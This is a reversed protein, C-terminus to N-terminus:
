SDMMIGVAAILLGLCLLMSMQTYSGAVALLLGALSVLLGTLDDKRGPRM